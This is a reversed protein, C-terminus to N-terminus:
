SGTGANNVALTYTVPTGTKKVHVVLGNSIGSVSTTITQTQNSTTTTFTGSGKVTNVDQSDYISYSYTGVTAIKVTISNTSNESFVVYEGDITNKMCYATSCDSTSNSPVTNALNLRNAMKLTQGLANRTKTYASSPSNSNADYWEDMILAQHGRM